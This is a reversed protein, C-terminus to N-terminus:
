PLQNQGGGWGQDPLHAQNLDHEGCVFREPAENSLARKSCECRGLSASFLIEDSEVRSFHHLHSSGGSDRKNVCRSM